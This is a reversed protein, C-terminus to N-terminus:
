RGAEARAADAQRATGATAEAFRKEIAAVLNELELSRSGKVLVTAGSPVLDLLGTAEHWDPVHRAKPNAEAVARAEEGIAVVVDLEKSAEGLELHRELSVDGLERMDGLFAVRPGPEQRLVELALAASLPNSNYSDDILTIPGLRVLRLRGKELNARTMRQLADSAAVGVLWAATVVLMANEAMARGPWPLDQSTGLTRLTRGELRGTIEGAAAGPLGALPGEGLLHAVHTRSLVDTSLHRAAGASAVRVGPANALLAQKERAVAAVDGLRSLHSEGITTILGHDPRTFGTLETMEGPHDVGLEIVLPAGKRDEGALDGPAAGLGADTRAAAVFAALLPPVTNLNGPTSRGDVAATLLTKVTTKGASGTVGIVPGMVSRRAELALRRMATWTDEVLLARPHPRDSVIFAAGRAMVEDALEIGHRTSGGWAFFVDGARVKKSDYAVGTGATVREHPATGGLLRALAYPDLLDRAGILARADAEVETGM